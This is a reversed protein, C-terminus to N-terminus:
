KNGIILKNNEVRIKLNIECLYKNFTDLDLDTFVLLRGGKVKFYYGITSGNGFQEVNQVLSVFKKLLYAVNLIDVYDFEM